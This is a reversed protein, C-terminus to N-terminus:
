NHDKLYNVLNGYPINVNSITTDAFTPCELDKYMEINEDMSLVGDKNLDHAKQVVELKNDYDWLSKLKYWAPKCGGVALAGVIITGVVLTTLCGGCRGCGCGPSSSNSNNDSM